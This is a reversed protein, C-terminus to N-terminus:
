QGMLRVREAAADGPSLKPQGLRAAVGQADDRQGDAALSVLWRGTAPNRWFDENFQERLTRRMLAELAWADLRQLAGGFVDTEFRAAGGTAEVQLAGQLRAQYEDRLSPGNGRASAEFAYGAHAATVRLQQLQRFAAARVAERAQTQTLRLYRKLWGEELLFAEFLLGVADVVARDGLRREVFPLTRGVNARHLAVGWHFLWSAYTELGLDATLLLRVQDPVKFEFVGAAERGPRAETDVTIRGDANQSLGLDAICRSLAHSLDERRFHEFAWPALAARQADHAQAVRPTLTPDLKKLAYGLLDLHPDRTEDLLRAAAELRPAVERGHLLELLQAPSLQLAELSELEADFRRAAVGDHAELQSSLEHALATRSDRSALRPLEHRAERPTWTRAAAVFTHTSLFRREADAADAAHAEVYARAVHQRLLVLRARKAEDIRPSALVESVAQFADTRVLESMEPVPPMDPQTGSALRWSRTARQFFQEDLREVLANLSLEM